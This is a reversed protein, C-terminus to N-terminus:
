AAALIPSASTLGYKNTAIRRLMAATAAIRKTSTSRRGQPGSCRRHGCRRTPPASTCPSAKDVAWAASTLTAAVGVARHMGEMRDERRREPDKQKVFVEAPPLPDADRDAERAHHEAYRM